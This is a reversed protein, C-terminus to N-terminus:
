RNPELFWNLPMIGRDEKQYNMLHEKEFVERHNLYHAPVIKKEDRKVQNAVAIETVTMM